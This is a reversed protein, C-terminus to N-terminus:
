PSSASCGACRWCRAGKAGYPSTVVRSRGRAFAVTVLSRVLIVQPLPVRAGVLKALVSLGSFLIAATVLHIVGRQTAAAEADQPNEVVGM